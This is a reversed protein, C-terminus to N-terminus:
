REDGPLGYYTRERPLEVSKRDAQDHQDTKKSGVCNRSPTFYSLQATEDMVEAARASTPALDILATLASEQDTGPLPGGYRYLIAEAGAYAELCGRAGCRCTRGGVM